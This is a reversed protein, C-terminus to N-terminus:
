AVLVDHHRAGLPQGLPDDDTGVRQPHGPRRDDRDGPQLETIQEAARYEGLLDEPPGPEAALEDAGDDRAVHLHHLPGGEEDREREDDDVERDVQQIQVEVRPGPGRLSPAIAVTRAISPVRGRGRRPAPRKVANKRANMRSRWARAPRTITAMAPPAAAAAGSILGQSGSLDTSTSRSEGGPVGPYRRPVSSCPRSMRLRRIQPPRIESRTPMTGVTAAPRTASNRPSTAPWRSPM